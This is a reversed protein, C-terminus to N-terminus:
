TSVSQLPTLREKFGVKPELEGHMQTARLAQLRARLIRVECLLRPLDQRANAIYDQDAITAGTLEISRFSGLENCSGLEICNSLIGADRGAVYSFWPGSSAAEIRNDIQELEEDSLEGFKQSTM